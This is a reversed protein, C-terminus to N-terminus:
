RLLRRTSIKVRRTRYCVMGCLSHLDSTVSTCSKYHKCLFLHPPTYDETWVLFKSKVTTKDFSFGDINHDTKVPIPKPTKGSVGPAPIM